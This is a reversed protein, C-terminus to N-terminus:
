TYIIAAEGGNRRAKDLNEFTMRVKGNIGHLKGWSQLFEVYNSEVKILNATMCHGGLQRGTPTIFGNEDPTKMGEYM